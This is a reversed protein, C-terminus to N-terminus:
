IDFVPRYPYETGNFVIVLVDLEERLVPMYVYDNTNYRLVQILTNGDLNWGNLLVQLGLNLIM